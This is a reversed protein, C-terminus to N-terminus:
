CSRFGGPLLRRESRWARRPSSDLDPHDPSVARASVKFGLSKLMQAGLKAGLSAEHLFWVATTAKKQEGGQTVRVAKESFVERKGDFLSYVIELVGSEPLTFEHTGDLCRMSYIPGEAAIGYYDDGVGATTDTAFKSLASVLYGNNSQWKRGAGDSCATVLRVETVPVFGTGSIVPPANCWLPEDARLSVERHEEVSGPLRM